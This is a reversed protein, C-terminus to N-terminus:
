QFISSRAFKADITKRYKPDVNYRVKGDATRLNKAELAEAESEFVDSTSPDGGLLLDPEHPAAASLGQLWRVAARAAAPSGSNVADNYDRLQATTLNALAWQSLRQFAADGGVEARIAAVDGDGLGAGAPEATDPRASTPPSPRFMSEYQEIV